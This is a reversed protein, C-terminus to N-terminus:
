EEAKVQEMRRERTGHQARVAWGLACSALLLAIGGVAEAVGTWDTVLSLGAPLLIVAAGAAAERGSGWRVLAYPLVMLYVLTNMALMPRGAALLLLDVVGVAGFTAAVVAFPHTRRWLLLPSLGLTVAVALGRQPIDERFVGELLAAVLVCALLAWDRWVRDPPASPRPERLLARLPNRM